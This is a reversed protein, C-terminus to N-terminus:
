CFRAQAVSCGKGGKVVEGVRRGRRRDGLELPVVHHILEALEEDIVGLDSGGVFGCVNGIEGRAVCEADDILNRTDRGAAHGRADFAQVREGPM